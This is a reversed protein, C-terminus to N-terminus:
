HRRFEASKQFHFQALTLALGLYELYPFLFSRCKCDFQGFTPLYVMRQANPFANLYLLLCYSYRARTSSSSVGRFNLIAGRFFSLFHLDKRTPHSIKLPWPFSGPLIGFSYIRSPFTLVVSPPCVLLAQFHKM